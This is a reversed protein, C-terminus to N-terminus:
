LTDSVTLYSLFWEQSSSNQEVLEASCHVCCHSLVVSRGSRSYSDTRKVSIFVMEVDVVTKSVQTTVSNATLIISGNKSWELSSCTETDSLKVSNDITLLFNIHNQEQIM